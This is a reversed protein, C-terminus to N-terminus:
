SQGREKERAARASRRDSLCSESPKDPLTSKWADILATLRRVQDPHDDRLNTQELRDGPFQFLAVQGPARGLLLKWAGERGALTPWTDGRRSATRWQWFIPKARRPQPEGFLAPMQNVGDPVYGAPLKAGAIACLTPLLDVATIPTQDDLKRAVIRSPWKAIFPTGVGGQLLSRKRGRHGGTSGVSAFTGFGRGTAEDDLDRRSRPGTNEPGNDSSFIVITHATLKLEDLLALVKGVYRDMRSIM